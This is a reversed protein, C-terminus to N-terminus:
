IEKKISLKRIIIYAGVVLIAIITIIITVIVVGGTKVGVILDASSMDDEGNQRNGGVSDIDKIGEENSSEIIEATNNVLGTNNVTMQKILTLMVEKSEGPEIITNALSDCYIHEGSQYWKPNMSSNFKYDSSMYDEIRKVYGAVDGENTM